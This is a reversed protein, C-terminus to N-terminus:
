LCIWFRAQDGQRDEQLVLCVLQGYRLHAHGGGVPPIYHYVGVYIAAAEFAEQQAAERAYQYDDNSPDLLSRDIPSRSRDRSSMTRSTNSHLFHYQEALM